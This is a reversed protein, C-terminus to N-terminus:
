SYTIVKSEYETKGKIICLEEKSWVHKQFQFIYLPGTTWIAFSDVTYAM